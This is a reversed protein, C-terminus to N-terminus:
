FTSWATRAGERRGSTIRCPGGAAPETPWATGTWRAEDGREDDAEETTETRTSSAEETPPEDDIRESVADLKTAIEDVEGSLTAEVNETVEATVQETVTETVEETVQDGITEAVEATVQKGVTETVETTVREGVTETVQEEVSESVDESLTAELSESLEETMWEPDFRAMKWVVHFIYSVLAGLGFAVGVNTGVTVILVVSLFLLVGYAIDVLFDVRNPRM